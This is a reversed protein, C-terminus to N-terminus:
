QSIPVVEAEDGVLADLDLSPVFRDDVLVHEVPDLLDQDGVAPGAGPLADVVVVHLAHHKTAAALSPQDDGADLVPVAHVVEVVDTASSLIVSTVQRVQLDLVHLLGHKPVVAVHPHRVVDLSQCAGGHAFRDGAALVVGSLEPCLM